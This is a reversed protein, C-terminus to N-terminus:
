LAATQCFNCLYRSTYWWVVSYPAAEKRRSHSEQVWESSEVPYFQKNQKEKVPASAWKSDAVRTNHFSFLHVKWRQAEDICKSRTGLWGGLILASGLKWSKAQEQPWQTQELKECVVSAVDDLVVNKWTMREVGHVMAILHKWHLHHCQGTYFAVLDPSM